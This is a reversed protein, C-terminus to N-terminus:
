SATSCGWLGASSPMPLIICGLISGPMWRCGPSLPMCQPSIRTPHRAFAALLGFLAMVVPMYWQFGEIGERHAVARCVAYAYVVGCTVARSPFSSTRDLRRGDARGVVYPRYRWVFRKPIQSCFATVLILYTLETAVDDWGFIYLIFPSVVGCQLVM